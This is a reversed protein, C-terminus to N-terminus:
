IVCYITGKEINSCLMPYTISHFRFRRAMNISTNYQQLRVLHCTDIISGPGTPVSVIM